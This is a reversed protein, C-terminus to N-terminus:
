LRRIYEEFRNFANTLKDAEALAMERNGDQLAKEIKGCLRSLEVAGAMRAAGAARHAAKGAKESDGNALATSTEELDPRTTKLFFQLMNRANDNIAGFAELMPAPDFIAADDSPSPALQKQRAKPSFSSGLFTKFIEKLQPLMVPKSLFSDMGAALCHEKQANMTNATLAVIPMHRKTDLEKERIRKTLEIGDINPMECDTLLLDYTEEQLAAWAEEGDAVIKADIGLMAAMKKLLLRSAPDDEAILIV